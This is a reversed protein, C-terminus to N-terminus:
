DVDNTQHEDDRYHATEENDVLGIHSDHSYLHECVIYIPMCTHIPICKVVLVLIPTYKGGVHTWPTCKVVLMYTYTYTHTHLLSENIQDGKPCHLRAPLALHGCKLFYIRKFLPGAEFRIVM